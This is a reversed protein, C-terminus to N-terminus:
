IDLFQMLLFLFNQLRQGLHRLRLLLTRVYLDLMINWLFFCHFNFLLLLIGFNVFLLLPLGFWQRLISKLSVTNAVLLTYTIKQSKPSLSLIFLSNNSYKMLTSVYQTVHM